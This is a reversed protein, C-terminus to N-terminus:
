DPSKTVALAQLVLPKVTNGPGPETVSQYAPASLTAVM